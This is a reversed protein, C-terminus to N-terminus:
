TQVAIVSCWRALWSICRLWVPGRKWIRDQRESHTLPVSRNRRAVVDLEGGVCCLSQYHPYSDSLRGVSGLFQRQGHITKLLLMARIRSLHNRISTERVMLTHNGHMCSINFEEPAEPLTAQLSGLCFTSADIAGFEEGM